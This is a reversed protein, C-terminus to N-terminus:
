SMCHQSSSSLPVPVDTLTESIDMRDFRSRSSKLDGDHLSGGYGSDDEIMTTLRAAHQSASGEGVTMYGPRSPQSIGSQSGITPPDDKHSPSGSSPLPLHESM